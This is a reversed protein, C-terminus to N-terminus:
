SGLMNGAVSHAFLCASHNAKHVVWGQLSSSYEDVLCNWKVHVLAGMCLVMIKLDKWGDKFSSMLHELEGLAINCTVLVYVVEPPWLVSCILHAYCWLPMLHACPICAFECLENRIGQKRRNIRLHSCM